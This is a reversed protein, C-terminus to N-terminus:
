AIGPLTVAPLRVPSRQIVLQGSYLVSAGKITKFALDCWKVYSNKLAIIIPKM